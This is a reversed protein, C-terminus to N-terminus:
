ELVHYDYDFTAKKAPPRLAESSAECCPPSFLSDMRDIRGRRGKRGRGGRRFFLFIIVIRSRPAFGSEGPKRNSEADNKSRSTPALLGAM